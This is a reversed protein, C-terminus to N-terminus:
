TDMEMILLDVMVPGATEDDRAIKFGTVAESGVLFATEAGKPRIMVVPASISQPLSNGRHDALNEFLVQQADNGIDISGFLISVDSGIQEATVFEVESWGALGWVSFDPIFWMRRSLVRDLGSIM